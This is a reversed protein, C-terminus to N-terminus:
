FNMYKIKRVNRYQFSTMYGKVSEDYIPEIESGKVYCLLPYINRMAKKVEDTYEEISSYEGVPVYCMIDYLVYESSVSFIEMTGARKIVTYKELCEGEHMSPFYVKIDNQKLVDYIQKLINGSTPTKM